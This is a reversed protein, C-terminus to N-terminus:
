SGAGVTALNGTLSLLGVPAIEDFRAGTQWAPEFPHPVLAAVLEHGFGERKGILAPVHHLGRRLVASVM